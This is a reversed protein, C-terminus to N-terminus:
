NPSLAMRKSEESLQMISLKVENHLDEIDHITVVTQDTPCTEKALLALSDFHVKGLTVSAAEFEICQKWALELMAYELKLAKQFASPELPPWRALEDLSNARRLRKM